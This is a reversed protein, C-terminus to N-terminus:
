AAGSQSCQGVGSGFRATSKHLLTNNHARGKMRMQYVARGAVRYQEDVAQELVTCQQEIQAIDLHKGRALQQADAIHKHGVRVHVMEDTEVPQQAYQEPAVPFQLQEARGAKEVLHFVLQTGIGPIQHMVVCGVELQAHGFQVAPFGPPAGAEAAVVHEAAFVFGAHDAGAIHQQSFRRQLHAAGQEVM